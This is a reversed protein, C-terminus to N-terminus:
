GARASPAEQRSAVGVTAGGSERDHPAPPPVRRLRSDKRSVLSAWDALWADRLLIGSASCAVGPSGIRCRSSAVRKGRARAQPKRILVAHRGGNISGTAVVGARMPRLAVSGGLGWPAVTQLCRPLSTCKCPGAVVGQPTVGHSQTGHSRAASKQLRRCSCSPGRSGGVHDRRFREAVGGGRRRTVPDHHPANAQAVHAGAILAAEKPTGVHLVDGDAIHSLLPPLRPLPSDVPLIAVSVARGVNVEAFEKGAVVDVRDM